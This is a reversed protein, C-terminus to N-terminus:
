FWAAFIQRAPAELLRLRLIANAGGTCPSAGLYYEYFCDNGPVKTVRFTGNLPTCNACGVANGIMAVTLDWEAPVTGAICVGCDDDVGCPCCGAPTFRMPSHQAQEDETLLLPLHYPLM